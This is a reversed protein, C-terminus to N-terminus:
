DEDEEDDELEETEELDATQEELAAKLAQEEEVTPDLAETIEPGSPYESQPQPPMVPTYATGLYKMGWGIYINGFKKGNVYAYAGPWLNSRVVAICFQPILNSSTMSSWPSTDNINADESLPTLLPPGTEPEPEDAEEEHDEEEADEDLDEGSKKTLNIWVCRGQTLIHQVHHVWLNLSEVMENVHIGEFDPNEEFTDRVEEDEGEDEEFHYFGVPSVHTGASIRAIQARLYNAENGPFPPYSVVPADLRGTFFKRIQRAVTIQAPIVFPLRVWPMGPEQCVFYTFKNVGTHNEERPVIPPPKYTSKPPPDAAEVMESENQAEHTEEEKEEDEHTEETGEEEEGEGERFEVEAVLYNSQTGLIKGWFRCRQVRQTDVLQKLALFVRQTEERGLGVGAQEFFFALEGVNPLPSDVLEEEHDGDDVGQSFLSKQQEALLLAASSSPSDRLTDQKEQLISRKLDLSMDEIVDVANEPREDMIKTLMQVLHDYLNLNTKTSNKMMFAKFSEVARERENDSEM